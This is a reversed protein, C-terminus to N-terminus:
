RHRAGERRARGGPRQGAPLCVELLGAPRQRRLDRHRPGSPACAKVTQVTQTKNKGSLVEKHLCVADFPERRNSPRTGDPYTLSAPRADVGMANGAGPHQAVNNHEYSHDVYWVLMGNHFPFREV